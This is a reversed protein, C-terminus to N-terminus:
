SAASFLGCGAVLFRLSFIVDGYRYARPAVDACRWLQARLLRLRCFFNYYPLNFRCSILLVAFM